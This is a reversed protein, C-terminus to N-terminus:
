YIHFNYSYEFAFQVDGSPVKFAIVYAQASSWLSSNQGSMSCKSRTIECKRLDMLYIFDYTSVYYTLIRTLWNIFAYDKIHAHFNM